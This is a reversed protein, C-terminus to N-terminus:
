EITKTTFSIGARFAAEFEQLRIKFEATSAPTTLVPQDYQGPHDYGNGSGNFSPTTPVSGSPRKGQAVVSVAFSFTKGTSTSRGQPTPRSLTHVKGDKRSKIFDPTKCFSSSTQEKELPPAKTRQFSVENDPDMDEIRDLEPTQRVSFPADGMLFADLQDFTENLAHSTDSTASRSALVEQGRQRTTPSAGLVQSPKQSGFDFDLDLPDSSLCPAIYNRNQSACDVKDQGSMDSPLHREKFPAKAPRGSTPSYESHRKLKGSASGRNNPSRLRKPDSDLADEFIDDLDPLSHNDDPSDGSDDSINTCPSRHEEPSLPISNNGIISKDSLTMDEVQSQRTSRNSRDLWSATSSQPAGSKGVAAKPRQPLIRRM